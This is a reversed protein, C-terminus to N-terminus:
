DGPRVEDAKDPIIRANDLNGDWTVFGYVFLELYHLRGATVVLICGLGVPVGEIAIEGDFGLERNITTDEVPAPSSFYIYAGAGTPERSVVRLRELQGALHHHVEPHQKLTEEVLGREVVSLRDDIM